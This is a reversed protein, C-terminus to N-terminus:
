RETVRCWRERFPSSVMLATIQEVENDKWGEEVASCGLTEKFGEELARTLTEPDVIDYGIAENVACSKEELLAVQRCRQEGDSLLLYEPLQRYAPSLPISGHQLVARASRYQASGILKRGKVMIENRNPALFCPLKAERASKILSSASGQVMTTIGYRRLGKRLSRSILAYTAAVSKGMEKVDQSFICSYTLDDKHLVARGGTPRRIWSIGNKELRELDLQEQPRQMYGITIAAPNWQYFRVAVVTPRCTCQEMLFLDAAMNFAASGPSDYIFRLSFSMSKFYCRFRACLM